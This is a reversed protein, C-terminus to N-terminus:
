GGGMGMFLSGLGGALGAVQGATNQPGQYVASGSNTNQAATGHILDSMFGLQKYPYNQQNLFDQYSNNLDTQQQNQLFNGANMQAQTIGSQQQFQNQGLQRLGQAANLQNGIGQNYLQGYLSAGGLGYQAQNSANQLGFQNLGQQQNLRMSDTQMGANQNAQQAQMSAQNSTNFQNQANQYASQLGSARIGQLNDQLNRNAESQMLASRTGGLGGARAADAGLGPLSRSYDRIAGLQQQNVVDNMYPSMYQDVNQGTFNQSSVQNPDGINVSGAQQSKYYNTNGIANAAGMAGQGAQNALDTAQGTQSSVGMNNVNQIAQQQLPNIDAQRQGQYPQYPNQSTDTLASAQGLTQMVYPKAYEPVNTTYSTSTSNQSGGGGSM